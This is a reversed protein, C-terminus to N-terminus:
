TPDLTLQGPDITAGPCGCTPDQRYSITAPVTVARFGPAAVKLTFSGGASVSLFCVTDPRLECSFRSLEGSSSELTAEVDNVPAGAADRVTLVVRAVPCGPCPQCSALGVLALTAGVVQVARLM